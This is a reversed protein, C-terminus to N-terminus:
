FGAVFSNSIGQIQSFGADQLKKTLGQWKKSKALLAGHGLHSVLHGTM